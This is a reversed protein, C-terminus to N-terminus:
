SVSTKIFKPCLLTDVPDHAVSLFEGEPLNMRIDTPWGMWSEPFSHPVRIYHYEKQPTRLRLAIYVPAHASVGPDPLLAAYYAQQDYDLKVAGALVEGVPQNCGTTKKDFFVFVPEQDAFSQPISGNILTPHPDPAVGSVLTETLTNRDVDPMFAPYDRVSCHFKPVDVLLHYVGRETDFEVTRTADYGRPVSFVKDFESHKASDILRVHISVPTQPAQKTIASCLALQLAVHLVPVIM